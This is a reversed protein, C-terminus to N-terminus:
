RVPKQNIIEITGNPKVKYEVQVIKEHFAIRHERAAARTWVTGAIDGKPNTIFYKKMTKESM